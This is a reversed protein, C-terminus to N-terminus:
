EEIRYLTNLITNDQAEGLGIYAKGDISFGIMNETGIPLTGAKTWTDTQPDYRLIDDYVIGDTLDGGFHRGGAIYIHRKGAVAVAMARGKGPVNTCRTWKGAFDIRYWSKQDEIRYGTGFYHQGQVSAGVGAMVSIMQDSAQQQTWQKSAPDYRWIENSFGDGMGYLCYIYQGDTYSIVGVTNKSPYDTLREWRNTAPTYKWWDRLCSQETYINGTFGLGIYVKDGLTCATGNVRAKLPPTPLMEWSDTVPSYRFLTNSNDAKTTSRRGGFVYGYGNAAFAVASTRAEPMPTCSVIRAPQEPANSSCACLCIVLLILLNTKRM